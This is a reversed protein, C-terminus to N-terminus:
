IGMQSLADAVRGVTDKIAPHSDPLHYVAESLRQVMSQSTAQNGEALTRRIEDMASRLKEAIVDDLEGASSLEAHLQDLLLAVKQKEM